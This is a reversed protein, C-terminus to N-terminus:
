RASKAAGRVGKNMVKNSTKITTKQQKHKNQPKIHKSTNFYQSYYIKTNFEM